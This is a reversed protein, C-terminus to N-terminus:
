DSSNSTTVSSICISDLLVVPLSFSFLSVGFLALADVFWKAPKGKVTIQFMFQNSMVCSYYVLFLSNKETVILM